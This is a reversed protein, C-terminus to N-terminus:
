AEVPQTTIMLRSDVHNEDVHLEWLQRIIAEFIMRESACPM